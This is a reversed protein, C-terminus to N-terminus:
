STMGELHLAWKGVLTDPPGYHALPGSAKTEDDAAWVLAEGDPLSLIVGDDASWCVHPDDEGLDCTPYSLIRQPEGIAYGYGFTVPDASGRLRLIEAHQADIHIRADLLERALASLSQGSGMIGGFRCMAALNEDSLTSRGPWPDSLRPRVLEIRCDPCDDPAHPCLAFNLSSVVDCDCDPPVACRSGGCTGCPACAQVFEVPPHPNGDIDAGDRVLWLDADGADLVSRVHATEAATLTIRRDTM